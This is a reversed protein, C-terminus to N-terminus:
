WTLNKTNTAEINHHSLTMWKGGLKKKLIKKNGIKM